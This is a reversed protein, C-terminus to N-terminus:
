LGLTPTFMSEFTKNKFAGCFYSTHNILSNIFDSKSLLAEDWGAPHSPHPGSTVQGGVAPALLSRAKKKGWHLVGQETKRGGAGEGRASGGTPHVCSPCSPKEVSSFVSAPVPTSPLSRGWLLGTSHGVPKGASPPEKCTGGAQTDWSRLCCPRGPM